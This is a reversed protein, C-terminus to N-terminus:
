HNKALCIKASYEWAEDGGMYHINTYVCRICLRKKKKYDDMFHRCACHSIARLVVDNFCDNSISKLVQLLTRIGIGSVSFCHFFLLADRHCFDLELTVSNIERERKRWNRLVILFIM